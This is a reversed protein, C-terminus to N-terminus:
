RSGFLRPVGKVPDADRGVFLWFKEDEMQKRIQESVGAPLPEGSESSGADWGNGCVATKKGIMEFFRLDLDPHIALVVDASLSGTLERAIGRYGGLWTYEHCVFMRQHTYGHLTHVWIPRSYSRFRELVRAKIESFIHLGAGHTHIVDWSGRLDAPDDSIAANIGRKELERALCRMHVEVGGVGENGDFFSWQLWKM